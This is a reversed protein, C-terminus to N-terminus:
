RECIAANECKLTGCVTEYPWAAGQMMYKFYLRSTCIYINDNIHKNSKIQNSSEDSVTIM